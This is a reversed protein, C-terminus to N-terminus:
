HSGKGFIFGLAGTILPSVYKWIEYPNSKAAYIMGGSIVLGTLLGLLVCLGAINVPGNQGTGFLKGVVGANLKAEDLNTSKETKEGSPNPQFAM